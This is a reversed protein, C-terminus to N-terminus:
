ELVGRLWRPTPASLRAGADFTVLNIPVRTLVRQYGAGGSLALWRALRLDLRAGAGVLLESERTLGQSTPSTDIFHMMFDGLALNVRAVAPGGIRRALGWRLSVITADFDPQTAALSRFPIRAVAIAVEGVPFPTSGEVEVGSTPDWWDRLRDRGVSSLAAARLSITSFPAAASDPAQAHLAAPTSAALTLHLAIVASVRAAGAARTARTVYASRSM